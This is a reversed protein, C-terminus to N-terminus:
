LDFVIGAEVPIQMANSIDFAIRAQFFVRDGLKIRYGFTPEIAFGRPAEYSYNPGGSEQYAYITGVGLSAFLLHASSARTLTYDLNLLIPISKTNLWGSYFFFGARIGVRIPSLYPAYQISVVPGIGVDTGFSFQDLPFPTAVAITAEIRSQPLALQAGIFLLFGFLVVRKSRM